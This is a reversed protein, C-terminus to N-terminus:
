YNLSFFPTDKQYGKTDRISTCAAHSPRWWRPHTQNKKVLSQQIITHNNQIIRISSSVNHAWRLSLFCALFCALLIKRDLYVKIEVEYKRLRAFIAYRHSTKSTPTAQVRRTWNSKYTSWPCVSKAQQQQTTGTHSNHRPPSSPLLRGGAGNPEEQQMPKCKM